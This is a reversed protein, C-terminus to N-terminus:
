ARKLVRFTPINTRTKSEKKPQPAPAPEPIPAPIVEGTETRETNILREKIAAKPDEITDIARRFDPWIKSLKGYLENAETRTLTLCRRLKLKELTGSNHRRLSKRLVGDMTVADEIVDSIKDQLHWLVDDERKKRMARREWFAKYGSILAGWRATIEQKYAEMLFVSVGCLGIMTLIVMSQFMTTDKVSSYYEFAQSASLALRATDTNALLEEFAM